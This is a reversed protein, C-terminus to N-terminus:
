QNSEEDKKVKFKTIIRLIAGSVTTSIAALWVEQTDKFNDGEAIDL